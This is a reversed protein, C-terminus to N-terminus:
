FFANESLFDFSHQKWVLRSSAANGSLEAFAAQLKMTLVSRHQRLPEDCLPMAGSNFQLWSYAIQRQPCLPLTILKNAFCQKSNPWGPAALPTQATTCIDGDFCCLPSRCALRFAAIHNQTFTTLLLSLMQWFLKIFRCTQLRKLPFQM